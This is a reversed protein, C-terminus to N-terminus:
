RSSARRGTIGFVLRALPDPDPQRFDVWTYSSLFVPLEPVDVCDELITPIVRCGRRVSENLFAKLEASQWPGLGSTGVCVVVSQVQGILRELEDQWSVGPQSHEVDIWYRVGSDELSHALRRVEDSDTSNHCLFADFHDEQGLFDALGTGSRAAASVVTLVELTEDVLDTSDADLGDLATRCERCLYAARMGGDIGRKDWLFDSICGTTETHELGADLLEFLGNVVFYAAGVEPAVDTLDSWGSISAIILNDKMDWFFNNDYPKATFFLSLDAGRCEDLVQPPIDDYSFSRSVFRSPLEFRGDGWTLGLGPAFRDFIGAITAEDLYTTGDQFLLVRVM